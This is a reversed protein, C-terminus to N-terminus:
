IHLQAAVDPPLKAGDLGVARVNKRWQESDAVKPHHIDEVVIDMLHRQMGANLVGRPTQNWVISFLWHYLSLM